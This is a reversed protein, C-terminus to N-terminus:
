RMNQVSSGILNIEIQPNTNETIYEDEYENGGLFSIHQLGETDIVETYSLDIVINTQYDFTIEAKEIRGDFNSDFHLLMFERLVPDPFFIEYDEEELIFNIANDAASAIVTASYSVMMVAVIIISLLKKM